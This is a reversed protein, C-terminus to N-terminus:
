PVVRPGIPLEAWYRVHQAICGDPCSWGGKEGDLFAEFVDLSENAPHGCAVLVLIGDDPTDDEIAIWQILEETMVIM